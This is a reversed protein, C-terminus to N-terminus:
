LGSTNQLKMMMMMMTKGKVAFTTPAGCIIECVHEEMERTRWQGRPSLSSWAKRNGSTTKGGRRRDVKDEEGKWQAKCSQKPWVQHVSSM